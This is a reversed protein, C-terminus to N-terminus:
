KQKKLAIISENLSDFMILYKSREIPSTFKEIVTYFGYFRSEKLMKLEFKQMLQLDEKELLLTILNLSQDLIFLLKKQEEDYNIVKETFSYSQREPDYVLGILIPVNRLFIGFLEILKQYLKETTTEDEKEKEMEALHGKKNEPMYPALPVHTFPVYTFSTM